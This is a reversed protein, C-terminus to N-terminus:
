PKWSIAGFKRRFSNPFSIGAKYNTEHEIEAWAHELISRIQVEFTKEQLKEYGPRRADAALLRSILHVSRYGFEQTNLQARKDVSRKEDVELHNRLLAAVKDVDNEYYTIVRLGLQDTLQRAPAGYHKRRIKSLVSEPSKARASILHLDLNHGELTASIFRELQTAAEKLEPLRDPYSRCFAKAQTSLPM